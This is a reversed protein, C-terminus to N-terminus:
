NKVLEYSSFASSPQMQGDETVVYAEIEFLDESIEKDIQTNKYNLVVEMELEGSQTYIFQKYSLLVFNDKSIQLEYQRVKNLEQYILYDGNSMVAMNLPIKFELLKDLLQSVDNDQNSANLLSVNSVRMSKNNKDIVIFYDNSYLKIENYFDQFVKNGKKAMHGKFVENSLEGEDEQFYLFKMELDIEISEAATYVSITNELVENLDQSNVHVLLFLYFVTSVIKKM